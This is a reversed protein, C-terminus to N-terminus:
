AHAGKADTGTASGTTSGTASGSAAGTAPRFRPVALQPGMDEWVVDVRMGISVDFPDIDILNSVMRAGGGQDLEVAIVIYPLHDALSPIFAQRVVTYTFVSGTGPLDSWQSATSRCRPCIPGPPHRTQDCATCRQVVLRHRAAAEWWGNTEANVGPVPMEDPFWR